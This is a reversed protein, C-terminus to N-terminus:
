IHRYIKETKWTIFEKDLQFREKVKNNLRRRLSRLAEKTCNLNQELDNALLPTKIPNKFLEDCLKAEQPAVSLLGEQFKLTGNEYEMVLEKWTTSVKGMRQIEKEINKWNEKTTILTAKFVTAIMRAFGINESLGKEERITKLWEHAINRDIKKASNELSSVIEAELTSWQEFCSYAFSLNRMTNIVEKLEESNKLNRHQINGIGVCPHYLLFLLLAPNKPLEFTVHNKDHEKASEIFAACAEPTAKSALYKSV